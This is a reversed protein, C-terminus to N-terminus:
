DQSPAAWSTPIYEATYHTPLFPRRARTHQHTVALPTTLRVHLVTEPRIFVFTNYGGPSGCLRVDKLEIHRQIRTHLVRRRTYM